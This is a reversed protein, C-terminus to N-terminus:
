NDDVFLSYETSSQTYDPRGTGIIKGDTCCLNSEVSAIDNLSFFFASETDLFNNFATKAQNKIM